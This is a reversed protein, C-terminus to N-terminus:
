AKNLQERLSNYAASPDNSVRSLNRQFANLHNGSGRRLNGFVQILDPNETTSLARDLDAIDMEEIIVGVVFAAERSQSGLAVLKDFLEQLEPNNFKGPSSNGTDAVEYKKMLFLVANTHREEAQSINSFPQDGHLEHMQVYVDHALKEEERMLQLGEVEDESLDASAKELSGNIMCSGQNCQKRMGQHRQNGRRGNGFKGQNGGKAGRAFAPGKGQGNGICAQQCAAPADNTCASALIEEEVAKGTTDSFAPTFVMSCIGAVLILSKNLSLNSKM